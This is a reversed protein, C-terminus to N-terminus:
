SGVTSASTRIRASAEFNFNHRFILSLAAPPLFISLSDLLKDSVVAPDDIFAANPLTNAPPM